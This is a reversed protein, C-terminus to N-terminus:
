FVSICGSAKCAATWTSPKGRDQESVWGSRSSCSRSWLVFPRSRYWWLKCNSFGKLIVCLYSSVSSCNDTCTLVYTPKRYSSFQLHHSNFSAKIFILGKDDVWLRSWMQVSALQYFRGPVKESCRLVKTVFSCLATGVHIWLVPEFVKVHPGALEEWCCQTDSRTSNNHWLCWCGTSLAPWKEKMVRCQSEGSAHFAWLAEDRVISSTHRRDQWSAESVLQWLHAVTLWWLSYFTYCKWLFPM